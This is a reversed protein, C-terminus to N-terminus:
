KLVCDKVEVNVSEYQGVVNGEITVEEGKTLNSIKDIESQNDFLCEVKVASFPDDSDLMIYHQGSTTGMNTIRGKITENKDKYLKDANEQDDNYASALKHATITKSDEKEDSKKDISDTNASDTTNTDETITADSTVTSAESDPSVTETTATTDNSSNGSQSIPIFISGVSLVIIIIIIITFIRHKDLFDAQIKGCYPCEKAGKDIEQGCAKCFKKHKNKM